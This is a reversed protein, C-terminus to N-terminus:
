LGDMRRAPAPEQFRPVQHCRRHLRCFSGVVKRDDARLQQWPVGLGDDIPRVKEGQQIPFRPM